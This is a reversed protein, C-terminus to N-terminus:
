PQSVPAGIVNAGRARLEAHLADADRVYVYCSGIGAHKETRAILLLTVGDRYMVGIDDQAYDIKFGLAEQYHAIGAAVNTLPLEPLMKELQGRPDRPADPEQFSQGFWITHGDPDRIEFIRMKIWNVKELEGPTGGRSRVAERMAAVDDTEFFLMASGRPRREGTSDVTADGPGIQIRAPGSVVETTAPARFADSVNGLSSVAPAEFGLVDRYFALSRNVDASALFRSVPAVISPMKM